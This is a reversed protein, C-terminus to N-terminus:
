RHLLSEVQKATITHRPKFADSRAYALLSHRLQRRVPDATERLDMGTVILRGRGVRAEIVLGLSRSTVWDDIVRVVPELDRPLQELPLAGANQLIYWWQWNSHTDTPFEALAPHEPDCLLGLTTPAQRNTWATNWFISSFGLHVPEDPDNRVSGGPLTLLVTGGASLRREVDSTWESTLLVDGADTDVNEPYVWIDWDNAFPTGPLEVELRYKAPADVTSLSESLDGVGTLGLELNVEPLKGEKVVHGDATLVRWVPAARLAKSGFHAVDIHAMLTDATTFVRRELRALPVTSNCFRRFEEASVYGKGEWFPNLVGVLATGQGPFDHLDLLQFGAMQPTRLASEIDEKYCLVQLKGSAQLFDRALSGLGNRELTDRFIEFNRAKLYGTYQSMEDLDPFVCWQGIEHSIVPVEANQIFDSYDTLTEPPLANIRSKLGAGWQQIRPDSHVHFQNAEIMPWGAGSTFLRRSDESRRRMVWDSLWADRAQEKGGPENGSAMLIFSPHNGYARLIRQTEEELWRDVPKGEGLTTSQNPWSAAEVQFYFGMEDGAIFAAEPPCWSHFRLSNLGHERAITLIRRWSEVDTPPHGTKPFIACELTARIFLPRGNIRLQRGDAAIERLGFRVRRIDGSDIQVELEHLAPSFEDWLVADESLSYTGSFRGDSEVTWREVRGAGPVTVSVQSPLAAGRSHAVRGTVRVARPEIQPYVDVTDIWTPATASLEINGVVGNWNGQTHDTVSHSNEGIDVVLDNDVRISLLHRGPTLDTGLDYDHPTSLSERRGLPREDLWVETAWHPRELTLVVRRGAWEEPIEIERQYWAVGRYYTEPQLWFPVKINGPERYPAYREQEFYARSFLSGVWPTEVTIPDGIGQGPLSGPLQIEQGAQARYWHEAVGRNERDLRVHWEGALSVTPRADAAMTTITTALVCAALRGAQNLSNM